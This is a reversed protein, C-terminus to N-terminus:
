DAILESWEPFILEKDIETHGPVCLAICYDELWFSDFGTEAMGITKGSIVSFSNLPMSLGTGLAKIYSEKLSWIRTFDIDKNDSESLYAQEEGTFFRSSLAPKYPSLKQIDAGIPYECVACIVRGGSHSLNFHLPCGAIYPKGNYEVSIGLPAAAADRLAFNLLLEATISERRKEEPKLGSLRKRRYESLKLGEADATHSDSVFIKVM